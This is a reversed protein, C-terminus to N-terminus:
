DDGGGIGRVEGDDAALAALARRREAERSATPHFRVEPLLDPQAESRVADDCKEPLALVPARRGAASGTPAPPEAAHDTDGEGDAPDEDRAVELREVLVALSSRGQGDEDGEYDPVIEFAAELVDGTIVPWIDEAMRRAQMDLIQKMAPHDRLYRRFPSDYISM